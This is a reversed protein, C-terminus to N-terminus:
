QGVIKTKSINSYTETAKLNTTKNRSLIFFSAIEHKRAFWKTIKRFKVSVYINLCKVEENTCTLNVYEFGEHSTAIYIEDTMDKKWLEEDCRVLTLGFFLYLIVSKFRCLKTM